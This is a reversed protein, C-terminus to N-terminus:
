DRRQCFMNAWYFTHAAKCTLFSIFDTPELMKNEDLPDVLLSKRLGKALVQQSRLNESLEFIVSTDFFSSMEM